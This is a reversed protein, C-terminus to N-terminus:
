DHHVGGGKTILRAFAVAALFATLALVMAVDLFATVGSSLTYIAIFGVTLTAIMELAVVRDPLSPGIVLRVFTLGLAISLIVYSVFISVELM